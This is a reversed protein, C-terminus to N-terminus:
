RARADEEAQEEWEVEPTDAHEAYVRQERGRLRPDAAPNYNPTATSPFREGAWVEYWNPIHMLDMRQPTILTYRGEFKSQLKGDVTELVRSLLLYHRDIFCPALPTYATMDIGFYHAVRAIM